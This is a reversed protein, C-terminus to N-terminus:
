RRRPINIQRSFVQTHFAWFTHYYGALYLLDARGNTRGMPLFIPRIAGTTGRIQDHSWTRGHDPTQWLELHWNGALKRSLVLTSPDQPDLAIGPAYAPQTGTDDISGGLNGVIKHISWRTATWTAYWDADQTWNGNRFTAFAITPRGRADLEVDWVWARLGRRRANFVLTSRSPTVPLPGVRRGQVDFWGSPRHILLYVNTDRSEPHANTFAVFTRRGFSAYRAYPRQNAEQASQSPTIIQQAPVWTQGLDDSYTMTPHWSAGRFYLYLRHEAGIWVPNPYTDGRDGASSDPVAAEAGWSSIEEPRTSTRYLIPGGDHRSYFAMIRRDPRLWFTPVSHDDYDLGPHLDYSQRVRGGVVSSVEIDGSTDVYGIITQNGVRIATPSAFWCWSGSGVSVTARAPGVAGMLAVLVWACWVGALLRVRLGLGALM